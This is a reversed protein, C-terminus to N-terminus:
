AGPAGAGIEAAVSGPAPYRLEVYDELLGIFEDVLDDGRLDRLAQGDIFVPAM